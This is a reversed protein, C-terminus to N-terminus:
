SGVNAMASKLRLRLAQDREGLNSDRRVGMSGTSVGGDSKMGSPSNSCTGTMVTTPITEALPPAIPITGTSSVAYGIATTPSRARPTSPQNPPNLTTDISDVAVSPKLTVDGKPAETAPAPDAPKPLPVTGPIYEM